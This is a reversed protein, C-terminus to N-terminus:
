DKIQALRIQVLTEHIKFIVMIFECQLRVALPGMVLVLVGLLAQGGGGYRTTVGTVILILGVIVSIGLGLWFLFKIITPTIM